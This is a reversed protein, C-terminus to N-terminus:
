FLVSYLTHNHSFLLTMFVFNKLTEGFNKYGPKIGLSMRVRMSLGIDVVMFMPLAADEFSACFTLLRKLDSM